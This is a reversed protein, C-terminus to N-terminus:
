GIHGFLVGLEAFEFVSEFAEYACLDIELFLDASDAAFKYSQM